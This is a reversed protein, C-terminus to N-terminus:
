GSMSDPRSTSLFFVLFMANHFFAFHPNPAGLLAEEDFKMAKKNM